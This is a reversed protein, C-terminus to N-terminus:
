YIGVICQKLVPRQDLQKWTKPKERVVRSIQNLLHLVRSSVDRTQLLDDLSPLSKALLLKFNEQQPSLRM